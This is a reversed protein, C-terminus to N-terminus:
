DFQFQSWKTTFAAIFSIEEQHLHHHHHSPVRVLERNRLKGDFFLSSLPSLFSFLRIVTYRLLHHHVCVITLIHFQFLPHIEPLPVSLALSFLLFPLYLLQLIGVNIRERQVESESKGIPTCYVWESDRVTVSQSAVLSFSFQPFPLTAWFCLIRNSKQKKQPHLWEGVSTISSSSATCGREKKQEYWKPHSWKHEDRTEKTGGIWGFLCWQSHSLCRSRPLSEALYVFFTKQLNTHIVQTLSTQMLLPFLLFSLCFNRANLAHKYSTSFAYMTWNITNIIIFVNLYSLLIKKLVSM